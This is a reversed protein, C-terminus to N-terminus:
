PQDGWEDLKHRAKLLESSPWLRKDKPLRIKKGNVAVSLAKDIISYAADKMKPDYYVIKLSQNVTILGADFLCHHTTCLLLGNRPDLRQAHSSKSWPLIHAGELAEEFTLGCM